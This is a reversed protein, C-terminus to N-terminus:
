WKYEFNVNGELPLMLSADEKRNAGRLYHQVGVNGDVNLGLGSGLEVSMEVGAKLSSQVKLPDNVSSQVSGQFYPNFGLVGSKIADDLEVKINGSLTSDGIKRDTVLDGEFSLGFTLHGDLLHKTSFAAGFETKNAAEPKDKKVRNGWPSKSTYIPGSVGAGQSLTLKVKLGKKENGDGNKTDMGSAPPPGSANLINNKQVTPTARLKPNLPLPSLRTAPSSLEQPAGWANRMSVCGKVITIPRLITRTFPCLLGHQPLSWMRQYRKLAEQTRSCLTGNEPLKLWPRGDDYQWPCLQGFGDIHMNLRKQAQLIKVHNDGLRFIQFAEACSEARATFLGGSRLLKFRTAPSNFSSFQGDFLTPTSLNKSDDLM